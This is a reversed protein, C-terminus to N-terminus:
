LTHEARLCDLSDVWLRSKWGWWGGIGIEWLKEVVNRDAVKM